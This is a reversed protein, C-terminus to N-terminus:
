HATARNSMALLTARLEDNAIAGSEFRALLLVIERLLAIAEPSATHEAQEIVRELIAELTVVSLEGRGYKAAMTRLLSQIPDETLGRKGTQQAIQDLRRLLAAKDRTTMRTRIICM